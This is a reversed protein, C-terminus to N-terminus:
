QPRCGAGGGAACAGGGDVGADEALSMPRSGVLRNTGVRLRHAAPVRGGIGRALVTGRKRGDTGLFEPQAHRRGRLTEGRAVATRRDNTPDRGGTPSPWVADPMREGALQARGLSDAAPGLRGNRARGDGGRERGEAVEGGSGASAQTCLGPAVEEGLGFPVAGGGGSFSDAHRALDGCFRGSPLPDVSGADPDAGAAALSARRGTTAQAPSGRCSRRVGCHGHIFRTEGCIDNGRRTTTGVANRM